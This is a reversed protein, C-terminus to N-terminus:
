RHSLYLSVSLTYYPIFRRRKDPGYRPTNIELVVSTNSKYFGAFVNMYCFLTQWNYALCYM